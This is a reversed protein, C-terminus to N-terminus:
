VVHHGGDIYATNGSVSRAFDSVLCAAMAGVEEITTLRHLPARKRADDILADFHDIGSAARTELPGPSLTNVRINKGGLDVSLYRATSELAAKVPGMINYHDVVKDAGHYSVTLITGGDAMLPEAQKALRILSHVSIDMALAFGQQSCDVVRGHLDDRPCFAISHVLFDLRGWKKRITDFVADTQDADTVDLPSFIGAGVAEAVPQVHKRAKDNQYTIALEAGSAAFARACGAAISHNNAVGVVLGVKGSLFDTNPLM